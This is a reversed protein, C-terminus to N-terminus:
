RMDGADIFVLVVRYSPMVPTLQGLNKPYTSPDLANLTLGKPYIIRGTHDVIPRDLTIEPRYHFIEPSRTTPLMRGEPSEIRNRVTKVVSAQWTALEGSKEMESFRTQIWTMLNQEGIGFTHGYHGLMSGHTTVALGLLLGITFWKRM